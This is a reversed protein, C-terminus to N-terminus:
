AAAEVRVTTPATRLASAVYQFRWATGRRTAVGESNLTVAIERTTRKLARLERMRGLIRQERADLELRVGDVALRYGFPITGVREGNCRKHQMADRTREAIAESARRRRNNATGRRQHGCLLPALCGCVVANPGKGKLLLSKTPQRIRM